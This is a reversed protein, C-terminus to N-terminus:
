PHAIDVIVGGVIEITDGAQVVWAAEDTGNDAEITGATLDNVIDVDGSTKNIKVLTVGLFEPFVGTQLTIDSQEILVIWDEGPVFAERADGQCFSIMANDTGTGDAIGIRWGISDAHTAGPASPNGANDLLFAKMYHALFQTMGTDLVKLDIDGVRVLSDVEISDTEMIDATVEGFNVDIKQGFGVAVLMSMLVIMKKM